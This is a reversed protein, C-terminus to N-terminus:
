PASGDPTPALPAAAVCAGVPTASWRPRPTPDPLPVTGAEAAAMAEALRGPCPLVGWRRHDLVEGTVTAWVAAAFAAAPHLPSWGRESEAAVATDFRARAGADLACTRVAPGPRGIELDRCLGAEPRLSFSSVSGDSASVTLWAHGGGPGEGPEAHLALVADAESM